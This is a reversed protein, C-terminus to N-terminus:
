QRAGTVDYTGTCNITQGEASGVGRVRATALISGTDDITGKVRATIQVNGDAETEYGGVDFQGDSLVGGSMNQVWLSSDGTVELVGEKQTVTVTEHDTANPKCISYYISGIVQFSPCSGDCHTTVITLRYSGSLATGTADGPPISTVEERSLEGSGGCAAIGVVLMAMLSRIMM